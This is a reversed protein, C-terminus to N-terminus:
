LNINKNLILKGLTNYVELIIEPNKILGTNLEIQVKLESNFPNPYCNSIKFGDPVESSIQNIWVGGSTTKYIKGTGESIFGYDNTIFFISLFGNIEPNYLSYWNIGSTTTKFIIDQGSLFGSNQNVFFVDYLM